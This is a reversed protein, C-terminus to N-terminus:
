QLTDTLPQGRQVNTVFARNEVQTLIDAFTQSKLKKYRAFMNNYSPHKFITSQL